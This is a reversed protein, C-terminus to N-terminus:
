LTFTQRLDVLEEHLDSFFKTTISHDNKEVIAYTKEKRGRPMLLSGPNLYLTGNIMEAGLMHSHGFFVFDAGVEKAKYSLNLLTMKVNYHHGHTIFIKNGDINEKIDLPFQRDYDCNGRVVLYGSIEEDNAMLESDGCHIMANVKNEYKEKLQKLEERLGHSDSVILVKM